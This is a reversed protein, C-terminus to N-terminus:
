EGIRSLTLAIEIVLNDLQTPTPTKGQTLTAEITEAAQSLENEKINTAIGKLSHALLTASEIDKKNLAQIIKSATDSHNQVFDQQLQPIMEEWLQADVEPESIDEPEIFKLLVAELQKTRIPKSLFADFGHELFEEAQGLLANATLAVIPKNYGLERLEQMVEIGSINPMMYDMFIIDYENGQKIKAIADHGTQCTEINLDYLAFIGQSVYLNAAVDDVVLVKAHSLKQTVRYFNTAPPAIEEFNQLSQATDIGLVGTGIRKQPIKICIHTGKNVKSDLTIKANMMKVLNYVIPMGLGTGGIFRSEREHFRSYDKHVSELQEKTMGRGTDQIHIELIVIDG